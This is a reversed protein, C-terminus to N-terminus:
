ERDLTERVKAALDNISFPKQIFSVDADLVGHHGIAGATYGSMFLSKLHPNGALLNKALDRGNMGPMIMDTLLLHIPGPHRTALHIAEAPTPAALVTYGQRELITAALELIAPEDEVLLITEQGRPATAPSSTGAPQAEGAHRPLYISFKSGEGPESYVSIFGNNQKVIGYATSLGLGTGKGLQKTTFFPEFVHSLTDKDMGCGDDSVDLRVYEGPVSGAHEACYGEDFTTNGTELTVKGVDSLADRANVLLNTLIQDIQSPDMKVSWLDAAPHWKLDIDEGILPRLLTLMGQVMENLDLAKPTITQQRSFALLQRTLDASRTAAQCIKSLNVHLPQGPSVQELALETHEPPIWHQGTHLDGVTHIAHSHLQAAAPQTEPHQHPLRPDQTHADMHHQSLALDEDAYLKILHHAWLSNATCPPPKTTTTTINPLQNTLTAQHRLARQLLRTTTTAQRPGRIQSRWFCRLQSTHIADSPMPINIMHPSALVAAPFTPTLRLIQRSWKLIRKDLIELQKPTPPIFQSTYTLRPILAHQLVYLKSSAPAPRHRVAYLHRDLQLLHHNHQTQDAPDLDYQSGLYTLTGQQRLQITKGQILITLPTATPQKPHVKHYPFEYARFKSTALDLEFIQAFAAVLDAQQQLSPLHSSLSLLDDAYAIAQATPDNLTPRQLTLARLLIDYVANWGFPSAVDGQPVGREAPLLIDEAGLAQLRRLGEMGHRDHAHQSLPLRVTTTGDLDLQILFQAWEPPVGLRTWAMQLAPKSISDFARRIDWSSVLCATHTEKAQELADILLLSASDTGHNARFGHQSPDLLQHTEWANRIRHTLISTWLKRFIELLCIPRLDEISTLEDTKPLPVLWRQKWYDPIHQTPWLSCLM